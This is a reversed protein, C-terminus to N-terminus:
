NKLNLGNNKKDAKFSDQQKEAAKNEKKAAKLEAIRKLGKKCDAQQYAYEALNIDGIIEYAIGLNEYNAQDKKKDKGANKVLEELTVLAESYAKAKLLMVAKEDGKENVVLERNVKVPSIDAVLAGVVSEDSFMRAIIEADTPRSIHNDFTGKESCRTKFIKEYVQNGDTIVAHVTCNAAYELYDYPAAVETKNVIYERYTIVNGKDDRKVNGAFDRVPVERYDPESQPVGNKDTYVRYPIEKLVFTHEGRKKASNINGEFFLKMTAIKDHSVTSFRPYGHGSKAVAANDFAKQAGQIDGWIIDSVNYYGEQYLREALKERLIGSIFTNDQVQGDTTCKSDIVIRLTNIKSLNEAAIAKPPMTFSATVKTSTCSSFLLALSGMAACVIFSKNIKM